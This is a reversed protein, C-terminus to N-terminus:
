KIKLGNFATRGETDNSVSQDPDKCLHIIMMLPQIGNAKGGIDADILQWTSYTFTCITRNKGGGVSM